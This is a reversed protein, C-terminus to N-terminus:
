PASYFASDDLIAYIAPLSGANLFPLVDNVPLWVAAMYRSRFSPFYTM